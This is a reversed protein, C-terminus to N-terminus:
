QLGLTDMGSRHQGNASMTESFTSSWRLLLAQTEAEVHCVGETDACFSLRGSGQSCATPSFKVSASEAPPQLDQGERETGKNQGQEWFSGGAHRSGWILRFGFAFMPPSLPSFRLGLPEPPFTHTPSVRGQTLIGARDNGIHRPALSM